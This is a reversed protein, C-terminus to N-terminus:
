DDKGLEHSTKYDQSEVYKGYVSKKKVCKKWWNFWAMESLECFQKSKANVKLHFQSHM